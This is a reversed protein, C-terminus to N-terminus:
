RQESLEELKTELDQILQIQKSIFAKSEKYFEQCDANFSGGRSM